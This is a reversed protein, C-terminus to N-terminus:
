KDFKEIYNIKNYICRSVQYDIDFISYGDDGIATMLNEFIDGIEGRADEYTEIVKIEKILSYIYEIDFSGCKVSQVIHKLNKNIIKLLYYDRHSNFILGGVKIPKIDKIKYVEKAEDYFYSDFIPLLFKFPPIDKM